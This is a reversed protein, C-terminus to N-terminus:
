FPTLNITTKTFNNINQSGSYSYYGEKAVSLTYSGNVLATEDFPFIAVGYENTLSTKDYGDKFLRASAGSIGEGTQGDLVLLRLYPQNIPALTLYIVPQSNSEVAIAEDPEPSVLAYAPNNIEFFYDGATMNNLQKEGASNTFLGSSQYSYVPEGISPNTGLMRGGKMSFSIGLVPDNTTDITKIKPASLQSILFYRLTRGGEVVQGHSYEPEPNFLASASYTRHEDYGTKSVRIEYGDSPPLGPRSLWGNNDTATVLYITPEVQDNIIEVRSNPVIEGSERDNVFLVLAGGSVESELNPPSFNAIQVLSSSASQNHEQWFVEIRTKKYDAPFEDDPTEGDYPDDIYFIDTAITFNRGGIEKNAIQPLEGAPVGALVGIDQYNLNRIIEIQQNALGLAVTKFQSKHLLKFLLQFTTFIGVMITLLLASGVLVDILTFGKNKLKQQENNM